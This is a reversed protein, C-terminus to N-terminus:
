QSSFKSKPIGQMRHKHGPRANRLVRGDPTRFVKYVGEIIGRKTSDRGTYPSLGCVRHYPNRHEDEEVLDEEKVKDGCGACELPGQPEENEVEAM